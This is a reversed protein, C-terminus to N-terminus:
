IQEASGALHAVKEEVYVWFERELKELAEKARLGRVVLYGGGFLKTLLGLRISGRTRESAIIEVVFDNPNGFIRVTMGDRINRVRPPAWLITYEGASEDKETSFGRDKFFDEVRESLLALNVNKGTWQRQM